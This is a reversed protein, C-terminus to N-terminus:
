RGLVARRRVFALAALGIGALVLASPEPARVAIISGSSPGGASDIGVLGPSVFVAPGLGAVNFYDQIVFAWVEGSEFIGPLGFAFSESVLPRNDGLTDIRFAQGIISGSLLTSADGDFNSITTDPSDAVYWVETFDFPTANELFVLANPILPDDTAACASQGAFTVVVPVAVEDPPFLGGFGLEDVFQPVVLTDCQPADVHGVTVPVAGATGALILILAALSFFTFFRM